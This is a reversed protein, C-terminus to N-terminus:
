NRSEVVFDFRKQTKGMNSISELNIGYRSQVDALYMEKHYKVGIKRLYSEVLNEMTHGGRNKRANSDLGVEVGTVYDFLNNIRHQQILDYLGTGKMFELYQEVSQNPRYFDYSIEEHNDLVTMESERVAILIPLCRLVAPYDKVLAKFDRDLNKSGLLANMANLPARVYQVNDYVKRFDTYYDYGYITERFHSFWEDFNRDIM